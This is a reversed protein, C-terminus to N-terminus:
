AAVSLALLATDDHPRPDFGALLGELRAILQGAGAGTCDALFAGLRDQGFMSGGCRAETIGDTYFLVSDGPGLEVVATTHKTDPLCGLLMGDPKVAEVTGDRRRVLVPPHGGDAITLRAGGPHPDLQAFVTTCFMPADDREAQEALIADNLASLVAVPDPELAAATRLTHRALATLVAADLGKGCVDGLFLGWRGAQLPFLDYFDGTVQEASATHYSAAVEMGPVHPLRPPLLSQRVTAATREAYERRQHELEVTRNVSLRLELEDAVIDALDTLTQLEAETVQRPETDMVNVAGLRYGDPTTIPAAAYFRVGLAGRVLPNDLAGPDVTADTVVYPEGWLIASSCLGPDRGVQSIGELGHAAKFWIRDEDVITVTAIPADFFRAALAAVRDFAGDPLTELVRYRRLAVLRASEERGVLGSIGVPSISRSAPSAVPQQPAVTM